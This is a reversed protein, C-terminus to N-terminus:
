GANYGETKAKSGQGCLLSNIEKITFIEGSPDSFVLEPFNFVTGDNSLGGRVVRRGGVSKKDPFSSLYLIEFEGTLYFKLSIIGSNLIATFRHTIYFITYEGPILRVQMGFLFEEAHEVSLLISFPADNGPTPLFRVCPSILIHFNKTRNPILSFEIAGFPVLQSDEGHTVAQDVHDIIHYGDIHRFIMGIRDGLTM